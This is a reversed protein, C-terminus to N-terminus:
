SFLEVAKAFSSIFREVEEETNYFYLSARTSAPIKFYTHLPMACHHGARVCMHDGNLIDALDHPHTNEVFMAAVAVRKHKSKEGLIQLRDGLKQKLGQALKNMLMEEHDNIAEFTVNQLYKISEKFAIIGSIHPTGAEFRYPPEQYTSGDIAVNMIMDGGYMFPKMDALREKKGFLVGVGTPGCMKHASFALFDCDIARVDVKIHPVAQAADVVIITNPNIARVAKVIDEIPNIIGLVNSVYTCAFIKTKPGIMKKLQSLDLDSNEDVPVVKFTAKKRLALQQWTVFNAHHEMLTTVVEDGEEVVQEGMTYCLLNISETTGRTFVIESEEANLFQAVVSRTEEFEATAAESLDYIGRHINAGLHTYYQSIADIVVQPKLSTATSDFYVVDPNNQLIPFDKRFDGM